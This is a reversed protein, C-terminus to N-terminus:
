LTRLMAVQECAQCPEVKTVIALLDEDPTEHLTAALDYHRCACVAEMAANELSERNGALDELFLKGVYATLLDQFEQTKKSM